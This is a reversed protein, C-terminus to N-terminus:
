ISKLVFTVISFGLICIALGVLAYIITNRAQATKQPDGAALVFRLAALMIIVLAIGGALGFVIQLISHLSGSNLDPQPINVQSKSLDVQALLSYLSM